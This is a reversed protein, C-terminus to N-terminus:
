FFYIKFLESAKEHEGRNTLEKVQKLIKSKFIQKETKKM